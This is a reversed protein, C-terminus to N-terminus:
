SHAMLDHAHHYLLLIDRVINELLGYRKVGPTRPKACWPFEYTMRSNDFGLPRMCNNYMTQTSYHPVRHVILLTPIQRGRPVWNFLIENPGCGREM